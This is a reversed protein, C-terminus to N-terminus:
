RAYNQWQFCFMPLKEYKFTVWNLKGGVKLVRGRELPKTIDIRVCIGLCRGWGVGDGAVDVEELDGLSEGIHAGVMKNMCILPMDHVQVWFSSHTFEVQTVPIRGDFENLVLIQWDFSWPREETM